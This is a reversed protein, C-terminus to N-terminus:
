GLSIDGAGAEQLAQSHCGIIQSIIDV